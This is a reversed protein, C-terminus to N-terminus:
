QNSQRKEYEAKARVALEDEIKYLKMLQKPSIVEEFILIYNKRVMAVNITNDLRARMFENIDKKSANAWDLKRVLTHNFHKTKNYERYVPAFKEFQVESLKLEEKIIQLRINLLERHEKMKAKQEETLQPKGQAPASPQTPEQAFSIGVVAMVLLMSMIIRKM